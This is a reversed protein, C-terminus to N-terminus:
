RDRKLDGIKVAGRAVAANALRARRRAEGVDVGFKEYLRAIHQKVAAETVFLEAAITKIAAPETFANGGLLPRCLAVLVDHERQTLAPPHQVGDTPRAGTSTSHFVIRLDGLLIEDGAHLAREGIVRDGNVFTGNRSGLDRVSWAEGYREFVAHVRSLGRREAVLDNSPDAGVTLRDSELPKLDRGASGWVELYSTLSQEKRREFSLVNLFRALEPDISGAFAGVQL